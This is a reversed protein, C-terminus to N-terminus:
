RSTRGPKVAASSLSLPGSSEDEADAREVAEANGSIRVIQEELWAGVKEGLSYVVQLREPLTSPWRVTKGTRDPFNWDVIWSALRLKKQRGTDVLITSGGGGRARAEAERALREAEDSKLGTLLAADIDCAEGYSLAKKFTVWVGAPHADSKSFLFVTETEDTVFLSDISFDESM